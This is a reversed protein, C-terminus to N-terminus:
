ADVIKKMDKEEAIDGSDTHIPGYEDNDMKIVYYNYMYTALDTGFENMKAIRIITGTKSSDKALTFKDGEEFKYNSM